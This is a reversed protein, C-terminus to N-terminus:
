EEVGLRDQRSARAQDYLCLICVSKDGVDTGLFAAAKDHGLIAHLNAVLAGLADLRKM